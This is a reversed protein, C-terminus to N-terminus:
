VAARPIVPLAVRIDTAAALEESLAPAITLWPHGAHAGIEGAADWAAVEVLARLAHLATHWALGAEDVPVGAQQEYERLFARKVWRGAARVLPRFPRPVDLPPHGLMLSTFGLDFSRPAIASVSWDLLTLEGAPDILVNFPHLDGHCIVDPEGTPRSKALAAAAAALDARGLLTANVVQRDLLEAPTRPVGDVGDLALTAPAPDLAHLQAAARAMVRPLMRALRPLQVIAGVGDLGGLMPMGIALDMVLYARGLPCDAGGALRVAPTAFGQEAVARQIATEKAAVAADPMVRAVLDGDLGAPPDALRFAVLDAWFGGSLAHPPGDYILDARGTAARLTELLADDLAGAVVCVTPAGTLRAGPEARAPTL